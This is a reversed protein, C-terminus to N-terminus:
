SERAVAKSLIVFVAKVLFVVFAAYIAVVANWDGSRM